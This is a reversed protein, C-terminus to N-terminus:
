SLQEASFVCSSVAISVNETTTGVFVVKSSEMKCFFLEKFDVFIVEVSVVTASGVFLFSSSKDSVIMFFYGITAGISIGSLPVWVPNAVTTLENFNRDNNAVVIVKISRIILKSAFNISLFAMFTNRSKSIQEIANKIM